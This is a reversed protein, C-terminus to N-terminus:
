GSESLGDLYGRIRRANAGVDSRGVRSLSRVDIRSGSDAGSVRVVVDDKFGFWFTTATAEIRGHAPNADVIDWGMERARELARDFAQDAPLALTLPKIDPYARRQQEAVSAGAYEVGNPAGRRLPVVASFVPPNEPDTTIDHIAPLSRAKVLYSAPLGAAALGILVGGIAAVRGRKKGGRTALVGIVSLAAGVLAGVVAWGLVRFGVGFSWLNARAGFGAVGCAAASALAALFGWKAFWSSPRGTM